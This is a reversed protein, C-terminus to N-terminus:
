QAYNKLNEEEVFHLEGPIILCQPQKGFDLSKLEAITGSKIIANESGLGSCAICITNGDILKKNEKLECGILYDLAEKISLFKKEKPDLDLLFLTHLGIKKNNELITYPTLVNERHFPISTTKGFKYLELGTDGVATLISTNHIIEVKIGKEEARNKLDVHTTAGFVDGIVLFATNIKEADKVIIDKQEVVERDALIIEKGYFAELDEKSCALASTYSELYIKDCHKVAELGKVTIDKENGLGIGIM